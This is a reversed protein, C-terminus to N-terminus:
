VHPVDLYQELRGQFARVKPGTTLWGSRISDLMEEIEDDGILPASIGLYPRPPAGSIGERFPERENVVPDLLARLAPLPIDHRRSDARSGLSGPPGSASPM